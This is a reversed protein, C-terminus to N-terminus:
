DMACSVSSFAFSMLAAALLAITGLPLKIAAAYPYYYWLGHSRWKGRLYSPRGAETEACIQDLGLLYQEPLPVPILSLFSDSFRNSGGRVSFPETGGLKSSVFRYTGLRKFTGDFGYGSNIVYLALLIIAGVQVPQRLRCTEACKLLPRRRAIYYMLPWIFVLVLLTMKCLQALGLLVGTALSDSWSGSKLWKWFLYSAAVGM